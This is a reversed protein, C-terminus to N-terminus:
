SDAHQGALAHGPAAGSHARLGGAVADDVEEFLHQLGAVGRQVPPRHEHGPGAVDGDVGDLLHVLEATARDGARVGVAHHVVWVSDVQVQELLDLLDFPSADLVVRFTAVLARNRSFPLM